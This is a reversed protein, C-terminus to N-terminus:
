CIPHYPMGTYRLPSIVHFSYDNAAVPARVRKLYGIDGRRLGPGALHPDPDLRRSHVWDVDGGAGAPEGLVAKHGGAAVDAHPPVEAPTM